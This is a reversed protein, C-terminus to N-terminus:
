KQTLFNEIFDVQEAETQSLTEYHVRLRELELRKETILAQLQQQQSEREKSVSQLLNRYGIAKTKETDVETRLKEVLSILSQTITQFESINKTFSECEDKLQSTQDAVTPDLVRIKNLEDFYLGTGALAEEAM